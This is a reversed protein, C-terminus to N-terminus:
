CWRLRTQSKCSRAHYWLFCTGCDAPKTFHRIKKENRKVSNTVQITKEPQPVLLIYQCDCGHATLVLLLFGGQVATDSQASILECAKSLMVSLLFAELTVSIFKVTLLM